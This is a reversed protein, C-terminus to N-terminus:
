ADGFNLNRRRYIAEFSEGSIQSELWSLIDFVNFFAAEAPNSGALAKLQDQYEQFIAVRDSPVPAAIAKRMMRIILTEMEFKRQGSRLLDELNRLRYELLDGDEREFLIVCEIVRVGSEVDSRLGLNRHSRLWQIHNFAISDEGYLFPAFVMYYALSVKRYVPVFDMEIIEQFRPVIEPLLDPRNGVICYISRVYLDISAQTNIERPGHCQIGQFEPYHEEFKTVKGSLLCAQLFIDWLAIWQFNLRQRLKPSPDYNQITTEGLEIVSAPDGLSFLIGAKAVALILRSSNLAPLFGPQFSPLARIEALRQFDEPSRPHGISKQFHLIQYADRDSQLRNQLLEVEQRLDDQSAALAGADYRKTFREYFLQQQRIYIVLEVFELNRALKEAKRLFYWADHFLDRKALSEAVAIYHFIKETENSKEDYDRLTRLLDELLRSKTRTYSKAPFRREFEQQVKEEEWDEEGVQKQERDLLNFLGLVPNNEQVERFAFKKFYAKEPPKM